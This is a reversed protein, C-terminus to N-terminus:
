LKRSGLEDARWDCSGESGPEPDAPSGGPGGARAGQQLREHSSGPDRDGGFWTRDYYEGVEYNGPGVVEAL